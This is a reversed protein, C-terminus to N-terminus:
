NDDTRESHIDKFQQFDTIIIILERGKNAESFQQLDTTMQGRVTCIM